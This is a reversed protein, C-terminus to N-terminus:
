TVLEEELDDEEYGVKEQSEGREEWKGRWLV